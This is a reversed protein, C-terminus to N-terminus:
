SGSHVAPRVSAFVALSWAIRGFYRPALAPPLVSASISAGIGLELGAKRAFNYSYGAQGKGVVLIEAGFEHAHLDHAPKRVVEGRGFLWHPGDLKLTSELLLAQTVAEFTGEPLAEKGDNLGVAVTTSWIGAGRYPRHYAASVTSRKLDSRPRQAFAAEAENLHGSSAQLVWRDNPAFSLRASVSDLSGFDIDARQEDPERGNFVSVEGKWRENYVGGTILGFTIHSSDLWHHSIPAIPNLAASFRHPFGPPGLAPEGALGAYVQWRLSGCLPRDFDVALEMFLDHPHQRDHISDGECIEGTALLNLFGCDSVTWLEASLMARVGFRGGAAPRRAMLMGWNVSSAQFGSAGGTRHKEGSEILVQGFINGHLMTEWGHWSGSLGAMPTLTPQWGTGSTDRAPFLLSHPSEGAHTQHVQAKTIAGGFISVMIVLALCRM